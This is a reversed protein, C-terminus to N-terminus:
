SHRVQRALIEVYSGMQTHIWQLLLSMIAPKECSDGFLQLFSSSSEMLVKFFNRSLEATYQLTDGSFEVNRLAKKIGIVKSLSFGDAAMHFEGLSILLKLRKHQEASGWLQSNPLNLLSKKITDALHISRENVSKLVDNVAGIMETNMAIGGSGASGSTAVVEAYSRTKLVIQVAKAYQQEVIYKALEESAKTLWGPLKAAVSSEISPLNVSTPRRERAEEQLKYQLSPLLSNTRMARSEALRNHRVDQLVNIIM